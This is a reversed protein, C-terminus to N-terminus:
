ESVEIFEDAAPRGFGRLKRSKRAKRNERRFPRSAFRKAANGSGFRRVWWAEEPAPYFTVEDDDHWDHWNAHGSAAFRGGDLSKVELLGTHSLDADQAVRVFGAAKLFAATRNTWHKDIM